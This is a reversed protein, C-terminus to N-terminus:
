AANGDNNRRHSRVLAALAQVLRVSIRPRFLVAPMVLIAVAITLRLPLPADPSNLLILVIKHMIKLYSTLLLWGAGTLSAVMLLYRILAATNEGARSVHGDVFELFTLKRTPNPRTNRAPAPHKSPDRDRGERGNKSANPTAM